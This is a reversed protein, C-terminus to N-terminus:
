RVSVTIGSPRESQLWQYEDSESLPNDMQLALLPVKDRWLVLMKRALLDLCATSGVRPEFGARNGPYVYCQSWGPLLERKLFLAVPITVPPSSVQREAMPAKQSATGSLTLDGIRMPVLRSPLDNFKLLPAGIPVQVSLLSKLSSPKIVHLVCQPGDIVKRVFGAVETSDSTTVISGIRASHCNPAPITLVYASYDGGIDTATTIQAVTSSQGDLGWVTVTQGATPNSKMLVMASVSIREHYILGVSDVSPDAIHKKWKPDFSCESDLIHLAVQEGLPYAAPVGDICQGSITMAFVTAGLFFPRQM